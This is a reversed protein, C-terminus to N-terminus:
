EEAREKKKWELYEAKVKEYDSGKVGVDAIKDELRMIAKELLYNTRNDEILDQEIDYGKFPTTIKRIMIGNVTVIYEIEDGSQADLIESVENILSVRKTKDIKSKGAKISLEGLTSLAYEEWEMSDCCQAYENRSDEDAQLLKLYRAMLGSDYM